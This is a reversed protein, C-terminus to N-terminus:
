KQNMYTSISASEIVVQPNKKGVTILNYSSINNTFYNYNGIRPYSTTSRTICSSVLRITVNISYMSMNISCFNARSYPMKNM